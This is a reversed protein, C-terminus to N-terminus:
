QLLSGLMGVDPNMRKESRMHCRVDASIALSSAFFDPWRMERGLSIGSRM